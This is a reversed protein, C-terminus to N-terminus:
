SPVEDSLPAHLPPKPTLAHEPHPDLAHQTQSPRPKKSKAAPMPHLQERIGPQVIGRDDPLNHGYVNLDPRKEDM